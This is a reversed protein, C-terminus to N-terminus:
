TESVLFMSLILAVVIMVLKFRTPYEVSTATAGQQLDGSSDDDVKEVGDERVPKDTM